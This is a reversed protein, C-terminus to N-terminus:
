DAVHQRNRMSVSISLGIGILGGGIAAGLGGTVAGAGLAANILASLGLFDSIPDRMM